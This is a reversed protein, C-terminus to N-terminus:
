GLSSQQPARLSSARRAHHGYCHRRSQRCSAAKWVHIGGTVPKTSAATQSPSASHRQQGLSHLTCCAASDSCDTAPIRPCAQGFISSCERVHVKTIATHAECLACDGALFPIFLTPLGAVSSLVLCAHTCTHAPLYLAQPIPCTKPWCHPHSKGCHSVFDLGQVVCTRRHWHHM